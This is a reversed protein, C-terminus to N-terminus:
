NLSALVSIFSTTWAIALFGALFALPILWITRWWPLDLAIATAKVELVAFWALALLSLLTGAAGGLNQAPAVFLWPLGGFATLVLLENLQPDRGLAFALLRLLSVLVLWGMLGLLAGLILGAGNVGYRRGWDAANLIAVVLGAQWVLPRGKLTRLALEPSFWMGYVADLLALM